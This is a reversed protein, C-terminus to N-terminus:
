IQCSGCVWILLGARRCRRRGIFGQYRHAAACTLLAALRCRFIDELETCRHANGM